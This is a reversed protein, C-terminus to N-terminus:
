RISASSNASQDISATESQSVDDLSGDDTADYSRGKDNMTQSTMM